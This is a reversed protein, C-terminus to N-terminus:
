QRRRRNSEAAIADENPPWHMLELHFATVGVAVEIGEKVGVGKGARDSRKNM